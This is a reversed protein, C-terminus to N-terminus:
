NGEKPMLVLFSTKRWNSYDFGQVEAIRVTSLGIAAARDAFARQEHREVFAVRCGGQRLFAAAGAGGTRLTSTGGLFILSPEDFGATALEPSGCPARKAAAVLRPAIAFGDIRPLVTYAAVATAIAAILALVLGREATESLLRWWALLAVVVAIAAFPWYARGFRGEFLIALVAVGGCLVIAFLPWLASTGRTWRDIPAGRELALAILIAIGPYLPLVYHPLKTVVLEFMLWAPVIWAILYRLEPERRHAWAYATAMPALAAAPWFCIWFLLWYYGPPGWHGEAPAALRGLLDVEVSKRLFGDRLEAEIVFPAILMVLWIFGVIPRLPRLWAASRDAVCLALVTLLVIAAVIPGKLLISAAISTWFIAPIGWARLSSTHRVGRSLYINALAGEAAVATLLLSEDITALRAEGGLLVSAGLAAGALLAYRRSVFTLAAWYVLLVSAIAALLSPVRYFVIRDRANSFGIAEAARVSGAQLWYIGIPKRYRAKEQLRIDFYDGTEIMQKAPQAFRSEDRNAPPLSAFGPLLALLSLVLLTLVARLHNASLWDLAADLRGSLGTNGRGRM